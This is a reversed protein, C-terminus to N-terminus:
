RVVVVRMCFIILEVSVEYTSTRPADAEGGGGSEQAGDLKSAYESRSGPSLSLWPGCSCGQTRRVDPVSM